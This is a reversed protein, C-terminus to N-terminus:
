HHIALPNARECARADTNTQMSTFNQTQLKSNDHWLLCARRQAYSEPNRTDLVEFHVDRSRHLAFYTHFLAIYECVICYFDNRCDFSNWPFNWPCTVLQVHHETSPLEGTRFNACASVNTPLAICLLSSVYCVLPSRRKTPSFAYSTWSSTGATHRSQPPICLLSAM